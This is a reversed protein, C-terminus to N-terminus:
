LINEPKVNRGTWGMGKSWEKYSEKEESDDGHLAELMNCYGSIGGVDDCLPLGDAEVCVPRHAKLPELPYGEKEYEMSTEFVELATIKVNWNDGYDYWYRMEKLIPLTLPALCMPNTKSQKSIIRNVFYWQEFNQEMDPMLLIDYLPLREILEDFGEDFSITDKLENLTVETIPAVRKVKDAEAEKNGTKERLTKNEDYWERFSKHVELMPKWKLLEEVEQQCRYFYERTGAYFYPGTYKKRLWTKVSVNSKYDDDWYIDEYDDTPFRFYTGTLHNWEVLMGNKVMNEFDKEYPLFCHLHSNQWGFAANIAYHLAHLTIDGPVIFDRTIGKTMKGYKMLVSKEHEDLRHQSMDLELHLKIAYPLPRDDEIQKARENMINMKIMKMESEEKSVNEQKGNEINNNIQLEEAHRKRYRYIMSRLAENSREDGGYQGRTYPLYSQVNKESIFLQKAIEPVTKGNSFLNGIQRSTNSEWLEETILVRRVKIPYTNCKKATEKVSETQLFTLVIDEYLKNKSIQEEM